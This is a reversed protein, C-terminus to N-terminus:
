WCCCCHGCCKNCCRVVGGQVLAAAASTLQQQKRRAIADASLDTQWETEDEEDDEEDGEGDESNSDGKGDDDKASLSKSCDHLGHLFVLFLTQLVRCIYLRSRGRALDAITHVPDLAINIICRSVLCRKCVCLWLRACVCVCM